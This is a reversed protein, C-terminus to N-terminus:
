RKEAVRPSGAAQHPAVTQSVTVAAEDIARMWLPSAVGMALMLIAMPWLTILERFGLDVRREEHVMHSEDGYFVIRVTRLMYGASLIVGAAAAAV